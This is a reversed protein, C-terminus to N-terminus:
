RARKRPHGAEGIRRAPSPADVKPVHPPREYETELYEVYGPRQVPPSVHTLAPSPAPTQGGYTEVVRREIASVVAEREDCPVLMIAAALRRVLDPGAPRLLEVLM